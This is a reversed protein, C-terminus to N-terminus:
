RDIARSRAVMSLWSKLRGRHPDFKDPNQWLHVFVDAVCEEVDQDSAVHCLISNVISWLLKSYKLIVEHIATEDGSKIAAVIAEDHM